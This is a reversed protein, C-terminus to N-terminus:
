FAYHLLSFWLVLRFFFYCSSSLSHYLQTSVTDLFPCSKGQGPAGHFCTVYCTSRLQLDIAAFWVQFSPMLYHAFNQTSVETLTRQSVSSSGALEGSSPFM